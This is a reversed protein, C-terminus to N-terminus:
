SRSITVSTGTSTIDIADGGVDTSLKLVKGGVQPSTGGTAEVIYYNTAFALGGPPTTGSLVVREGVQFEHTTITLTDASADVTCSESMPILIQTVDFRASWVISTASKGQVAVRVAGWSSIELSPDTVTIQDVLETLTVVVSSGTDNYRKVTFHAHWSGINGTAEDIGQIHVMGSMVANDLLYGYTTTGRTALYTTGTTTTRNSTHWSIAQADGLYQVSKGSFALAGAIYNHVNNGFSLSHLAEDSAVNGQGFASAYNVQVYNDRGAAFASTGGTIEVGIGGAICAGAASGSITNGNGGIIVGGVVNGSITNNVGGVITQQDGDSIINTDGGVITQHDGSTIQCDEGFGIGSFSGARINNGRGGGIFARGGAIWNYSGGVIVSHGSASYSLMNHGGGCMTGAIQNNVMDYGGSITAVIAPAGAGTYTDDAVWGPDNDSGIPLGGDAGIKNPFASTGAGTLTATNCGTGLTNDEQNLIYSDTQSGRYVAADLLKRAETITVSKAQDADIDDVVLMDGDAVNAAVIAPLNEIRSNAM